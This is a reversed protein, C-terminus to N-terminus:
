SGGEIVSIFGSAGAAQLVRHLPTQWSGASPQCLAAIQHMFEPPDCVSTAAPCHAHPASALRLTGRCRSRSAQVMTTVTRATASTPHEGQVSGAPRGGGFDDAQGDSSRPCVMRVSLGAIEGSPLVSDEPRQRRPVRRSQIRRSFESEAWGSASRLRRSGKQDGSPRKMAKKAPLLSRLIGAAPPGGSVIQSAGSAPPDQFLSPVM